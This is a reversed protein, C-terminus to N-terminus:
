CVRGGQKKSPAVTVSRETKTVSGAPEGGFLKKVGRYIKGPISTIAARDAENEERQIKKWNEYGRNERDTLAKDEAESLAGGGAMKKGYIENSQAKSQKLATANEESFKKRLDSEAPSGPMVRGGKKFTGSIRDTSVPATPKKRGQPMAVPAGSDVKGGAAFAKKVQGGKKMMGGFWPLPVSPFRPGTGGQPAGVSKTIDGLASEVGSTGSKIQGLGGYATGDGGSKEPMVTMEGLGLIGGDAMKRIKGGGKYGGANSKAVGGTKFGGQGNVVGGTKFGGQGNVVGGTKLGSHAKSAPLAAHKKLTTGGEKMVQAAMGIPAAPAAQAPMARMARRRAAMSPKMPPRAGMPGGRAPMAPPLGPPPGAPLGAPPAMEPMGGMQMKKEVKGGSKLKLEVSPETTEMKVMPKFQGM